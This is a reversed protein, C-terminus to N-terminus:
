RTMGERAALLRDVAADAFAPDNLHMPLSEVRTHTAGQLGDRIASFLAADAEPDYFPQGPADLASVGLEPILVVTEVRADRLVEAMRHGIAECEPAQTRMLTVTPNHVHFTRGRFSEPVTELPGFNVM